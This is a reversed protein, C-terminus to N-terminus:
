QGLNLKVRLKRRTLNKKREVFNKFLITIAIKSVSSVKILVISQIKQFYRNGRSFMFYYYKKVITYRKM